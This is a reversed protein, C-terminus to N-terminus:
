EEIEQKELRVVVFRDPKGSCLSTPCISEKTLKFGQHGLSTRYYWQEGLERDIPRSYSYVLGGGDKLMGRLYLLVTKVQEAPVEHFLTPVVIGDYKRDLCKAKPPLHKIDTIWREAPQKAFDYRDVTSHYTVDEAFQLLLHTFFGLTDYAVLYSGSKHVQLSEFMTEMKWVHLKQVEVGANTHHWPILTLRSTMLESLANRFELSM